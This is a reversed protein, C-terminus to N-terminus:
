HSDKSKTSATKVRQNKDSSMSRVSDGSFISKRSSSAKTHTDKTKHPLSSIKLEMQVDNKFMSWDASDFFQRGGQQISPTPRLDGHRTIFLKEQEIEKASKTGKKSAKLGKM